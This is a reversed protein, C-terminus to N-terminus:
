VLTVLGGGREEGMRCLQAYSHRQRQLTVAAGIQLAVRSASGRPPVLLLLALAVADATGSHYVCATGVAGLLGALLQLPVHLLQLGGEQRGGRLSPAAAAFGPLLAAAALRRRCGRLLQLPRHLLQRPHHALRGGGGGGLVGHQAEQGQV